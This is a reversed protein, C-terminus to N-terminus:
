LLLCFYIQNSQRECTHESDSSRTQLDSIIVARTTTVSIVIVKCVFARKKPKVREQLSVLCLPQQTDSGSWFKNKYLMISNTNLLRFCKFFAWHLSFMNILSHGKANGPSSSTGCTCCQCCWHRTWASPPPSVPPSASPVCDVPLDGSAASGRCGPWCWSRHSPRGVSWHSFFQSSSPSPSRPLPPCM